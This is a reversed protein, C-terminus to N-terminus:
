AYAEDIGKKLLSVILPLSPPHIPPFSAFPSFLM